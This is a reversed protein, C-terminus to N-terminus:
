VYRIKMAELLMKHRRTRQFGLHREFCLHADSGRNILGRYKPAKLVLLRMIGTKLWCHGLSDEIVSDENRQPQRSYHERSM